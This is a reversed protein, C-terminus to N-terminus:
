REYKKRIADSLQYVAMVYNPSPNYHMIARFNPFTIWYEKGHSNNLAMIAAEQQQEIPRKSYIGLENLQIMSATTEGKSSLVADPITRPHKAIAAAIPEGKHWGSHSLFNAVSMIVDNVNHVLDLHHNHSYDVGYSRYSSPMFQPMGFAGAYSGHITLPSLHDEQCLLLFQALEDNFFAARPPYHFALTSLADLVRYNGLHTGYLTEVGLIAIIVSPDVGYKKQALKLTNAHHKWFYVGEKIRKTTLFHHRYIDYPQTEYPKSIKHIVKPLYHAKSLTKTISKATLPYRSTSQKIFKKEAPSLTSANASTLLASCCVGFIIGTLRRSM